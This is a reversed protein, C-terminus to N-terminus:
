HPGSEIHPYMIHDGIYMGDLMYIFLVSVYLYEMGVCPEYYDGMFQMAAMNLLCAKLICKTQILVLQQYLSCQLRVCKM